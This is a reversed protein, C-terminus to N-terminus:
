LCGECLGEQNWGFFLGEGGSRWGVGCKTRDLARPWMAKKCNCLSWSRSETLSGVLSTGPTGM